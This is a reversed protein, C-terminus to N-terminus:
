TVWFGRPTYHMSVHVLMAVGWRIRGLFFDM